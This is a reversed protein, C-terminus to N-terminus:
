RDNRDGKSEQLQAADSRLGDIVREIFEETVNTRGNRAAQLADELLDIRNNLGRLVKTRLSEYDDTGHSYAVRVREQERALEDELEGIRADRQKLVNELGERASLAEAREVEAADREANALAEAARAEESQRDADRVRGELARSL